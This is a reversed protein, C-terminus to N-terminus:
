LTIKSDQMAYSKFFEIDFEKLKKMDMKFIKPVELKM